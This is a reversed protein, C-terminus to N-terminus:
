KFIRYVQARQNDDRPCYELCAGKLWEETPIIEVQLEASLIAELVHRHEVGARPVHCLLLFAEKSSLFSKVVKFFPEVLAMKYLVDGAVVRIDSMLSPNELDMFSLEPHYWNLNIINAEIMNHQIDNQMHQLSREDYDTMYVSQAGIVKTLMGLVGTGAGLEIIQKGTILNPNSLIYEMLAISGCWLKQGSIESSMEQLGMLKSIPLYSVTTVEFTFGGISFKEQEYEIEDDSDAM